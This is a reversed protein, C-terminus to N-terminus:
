WKQHSQDDGDNRELVVLADPRLLYGDDRSWIIRRLGLARLKAIAVRVRLNGAEPRVREDPWGHTLLDEWRLAQGPRRIRERVLALLVLRQARQRSLEVRSGSPLRLQRADPGVVLPAQGEDIATPPKPVRAM